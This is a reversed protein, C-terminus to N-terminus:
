VSNKKLVSFTFNLGNEVWSKELKCDKEWRAWNIKPFFSDGDFECDVVTLYLKNCIPFFQRYIEGGGIVFLETYNLSNFFELVSSINNFIFVDQYKRCASPNYTRSLILNKRKVLPKKPLSEWTKRGMLVAGNKTINYFNRMDKKSYWCLQNNKGIVYNKSIAAVISINM